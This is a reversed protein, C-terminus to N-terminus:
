RDRCGLVAEVMGETDVMTVKPDQQVAQTVPALDPTRASLLAEAIAAEIASAEEELGLSHRLLMAASLIAGIPNARGQGAIDPASGHVPEYLGKGDASLSASPLLGLSGALVSAEDSLIDGFLNGALIVDFAAPKTILHMAAADVLLHEYEVDPFSKAVRDVVQRWLRMSALVNAKDISALRGRRGRAAEFAVRAVREIEEERYLLTDWAADPQEPDEGHERRPGFYLGGTLERVILLDVGDVREPRLPTSDRLAPQVKIPRLNAFLGFPGVCNSCGLNQVCISRHRPIRGGRGVWPGSCCPTRVSASKSPPRPCRQQTAILPTAVLRRQRSILTTGTDSPSARSCADLLM